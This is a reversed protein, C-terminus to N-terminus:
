VGDCPRWGNHSSMANLRWGLLIWRSTKACFPPPVLQSLTRRRSTTPSHLGSGRKQSFAENGWSRPLNDAGLIRQSNGEASFLQKGLDHSPAAAMRAADPPQCLLGLRRAEVRFAVGAGRHSLQPGTSVVWRRLKERQRPVMFKRREERPGSRSCGNHASPLRPHSHMPWQM